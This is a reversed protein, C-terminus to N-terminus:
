DSDPPTDAPHASDSDPESLEAMLADMRKCALKVIIPSMRGYEPGGEGTPISGPETKAIAEAAQEAAKPMDPEPTAAAIAAELVHVTAQCPRNGPVHPEIGILLNRAGQCAKLLAEFNNCAHEIYAANDCAVSPEVDAWEAAAILVNGEARILTDKAKWPLPSHNM